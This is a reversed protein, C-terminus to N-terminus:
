LAMQKHKTSLLKNLLLQQTKFMLNLQIQQLLKLMPKVQQPLRYPKSFQKLQLRHEVSHTLKCLQEKYARLLQSSTKLTQTHRNLTM